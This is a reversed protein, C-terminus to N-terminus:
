TVKRLNPIQMFGAHELSDPNSVAVWGTKVTKQLKRNKWIERYVYSRLHVREGARLARITTSTSSSDKKLPAPAVNDRVSYLPGLDSNRNGFIPYFRSWPLFPGPDDRRGMSIEDHGVVDRITPYAAILARLVAECADLQAKTFREWPAEATGSTPLRPRARGVSAQPYTAGGDSRYKAGDKKLRGANILSVAVAFNNLQESDKWSSYGAHATVKNLLALQKLSGDRDILLHYAKGPKLASYTQSLTDTAPYHLVVYRLELGSKSKFGDVWQAVDLKHGAIQM